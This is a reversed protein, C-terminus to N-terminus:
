DDDVILGSGVRDFVSGSAFIANVPNDLLVGIFEDPEDAVDALVDVRITASTAGPPFTLTGNAGLYDVGETAFGEGSIPLTRWDVSVVATSAHSLTVPIDVLTSGVNGELVSATQWSAARLIPPGDDDAIGGFGLGWFGGMAANIPDHFSIVIYEDREVLTDGNVSINVSAATQGPAFTVTGNAPVYDGAPDAQDGLVTDNPAGPVHVTTWEATVTATSAGSLTVPLQLSTLGSNGEFVVAAGPLMTRTDSRAIPVPGSWTGDTQCTLTASGVLTFGPDAVFSAVSGIAYGDALTFSTQPAAILTPCEPRYFSGSVDVPTLRGTATGDGLEGRDNAGWCKIAGANTLACSHFYGPAIAAVGASLGFVDVPTSRPVRTGDGLQGDNNLGWCKMGGSTTLACTHEFGVAMAAVGSTLGSVDVPTMRLTTTGDGVEGNFNLGWCKMGGATTLVCTHDKVSAIAAAGSTLGSVDVPTLRPTTTGDGLQGLDNAGWCKAVGASTVACSMRNGTAIGSVGATLGSVDVPTLRQSTTGDGLQGDGNSGWCKVGGASTLACTHDIGAVIAQVGSGLGSVSTPTFRPTTTGDGLQGDRNDGWCKAGGSATVACTHFNDASIASVGSVLGSVEVPTLRHDISGDGLQGDANNGWCKAGGAATLACTYADGATLSQPGPPVVSIDIEQLDRSPQAAVPPLGITSVALLLMAPLATVFVRIVRGLAPLPTIVREM